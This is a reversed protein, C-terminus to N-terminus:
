NENKEGPKTATKSLAVYNFAANAVVIDTQGDTREAKGHPRPRSTLRAELPGLLQL